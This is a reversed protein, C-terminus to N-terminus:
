PGGGAPILALRREAEALVDEPDAAGDLLVDTALSRAFAKQSERTIYEVKSKGDIRALLLCALERTTAAEIGDACGADLDARYGRWFTRAAELYGDAREPFRIAKLVLHNLCFAPDFSPDGFHAVEFDLLLVHGDYAILNKPSYDGLVLTRRTALVREVEEEILPRLRPHALAATRHYPDLRGQILVTRDCFAEGATRDAAAQTQIAALMTGAWGAVRLDVEGALLAEKWNAGGPPACSMAFLFHEDDAFRVEPVTGAPLLTGLYAMCRREVFIRRRDFERVAEVRLRPLSQKLVFCDGGSRVRLVVNSIGGGLPEIEADDAIMGRSRLYAAASATSLEGSPERV